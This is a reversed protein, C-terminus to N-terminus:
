VSSNKPVCELIAQLIQCTSSCICISGPTCQEEVPVCNHPFTCASVPVSVAVPLYLCASVAPLPLPLLAIPCGNYYCNCSCVYCCCCGKCKGKCRQLQGLERSWCGNCSDQLLVPKLLPKECHKLKTPRM